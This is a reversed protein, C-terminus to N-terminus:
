PRMFQAFARIREMIDPVVSKIAETMRSALRHVAREETQNICFREKLFECANTYDRPTPLVSVNQILSFLSLFLNAHRRLVLFATFTIKWFEGFQSTNAGGMAEIMSRTLRVETAMPKPDNGFLFSFDIHFLRGDNTLLLNEMHRDGVGLLYTIVCYGACSRIYTELVEKQVGLPDTSSRANQQLFGLITGKQLIDCVSQSEIFQVFGHGSGTALVKYPTLKLDFNEKRLILSFPDLGVKFLNTAPADIGIVKVEPELPLCLPEEIHNLHSFEAEKFCSHLREIKRIRDGPGDMVKHIFQLLDALFLSQRVLEKYWARQTENGHYLASQLLELVHTYMESAPSLPEDLEVRLFWYLYNAVPWSCLARRILFTTLDEKWKDKLAETWRGGIEVILSQSNHSRPSHPSRVSVNRTDLPKRSSSLNPPLNEVGPDTQDEQLSREALDANQLTQNLGSATAVCDMPKVPTSLIDHWNEYYLAQVLQYLYLLLEEDRAAHLRLVAFRRVALHIFQRNFLELVYEPAVVPWQHLLEVAQEVQEPYEWRVALLFKALAAEPYKEALYFRHQWVLDSDAEPLDRAPPQDLIGMLRDLTEKNPKRKRDVDAVRLSRTMKFYKEDVPNWREARTDSALPEIERREFIVPINLTPQNRSFQFEISLFLRGSSRKAEEIAREADSRTHRDLPTDFLEDRSAAINTKMIKNLQDMGVPKSDFKPDRVIREIDELRRIGLPELPHLELEYIGHRFVKKSNYLPMNAGALLQDHVGKEDTYTSSLVFCVGNYDYLANYPLPLEIVEDFRRVDTLTRETSCHRTECWPSIICCDLHPVIKTICYSIRPEGYCALPLYTGKVVKFKEPHFGSLNMIKICPLISEDNLPPGLDCSSFYQLTLSGMAQSHTFSLNIPCVERRDFAFRTPGSSQFTICVVPQISLFLIRSIFCSVDM